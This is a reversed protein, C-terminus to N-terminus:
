AKTFLSSNAAKRRQEFEAQLRRIRDELGRRTRPDSESELSLRLPALAAEEQERLAKLYEQHGGSWFGQSKTM